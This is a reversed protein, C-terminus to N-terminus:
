PASFILQPCCNNVVPLTATGTCVLGSPGAYTATITATGIATPTGTIAGSAANITLGAPLGTASWTYTSGSPAGSVSPTQNYATGVSGQPLQAPTVTIVPCACPTINITLNVV